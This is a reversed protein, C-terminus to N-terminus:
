FFLLKGDKKHLKGFISKEDFSDKGIDLLEEKSGGWIVSSFIPHVTRVVDKQKRFYESLVGVSSKTEEIDFVDNNCFSYSFTPIVIRGNQGVSEKLADVLSQLLFGRDTICLKGFVSIDSHVFITDNENVGVEKLANVIDNYYIERGDAKYLPQILKNDFIVQVIGNGKFICEQGNRTM